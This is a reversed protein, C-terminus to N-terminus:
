HHSARPSPFPSAVLGFDLVHFTLHVKGTSDSHVCRGCMESSGLVNMYRYSHSVLGNPWSTCFCYAKVSVWMFKTMACCMCCQHFHQHPQSHVGWQLSCWTCSTMVFWLAEVTLSQTLWHCVQSLPFQCQHKPKM